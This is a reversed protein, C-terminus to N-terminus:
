FPKRGKSPSPILQPFGGNVAAGNFSVAGAAASQSFVDIIQRNNERRGKTHHSSLVLHGNLATIAISMTELDRMEGLLIVDPTQRM